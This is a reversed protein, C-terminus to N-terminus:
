RVCNVLVGIELKAWPRDTTVAPFGRTLALALCARDGLSLGLSKTSERLSATVTALEPDFPVVELRLRALAAV